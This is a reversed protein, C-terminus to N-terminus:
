QGPRPRPRPRSPPAQAPQVPQIPAAVVQALATLKGEAANARRRQEDVQTQLAQVESRWGARTRDLETSRVSLLDQAAELRHQLDAVSREDREREQQLQEYRAIHEQAVRDADAHAAALQETLREAHTALGAAHRAAADANQAAAHADAARAAREDDLHGAVTTLQAEADTLRARTVGHATTEANLRGQTDALLAAVDQLQETLDATTAREADLEATLAETRSRQAALEQTAEALRAQEATIAAELQEAYGEAADARQTEAAHAERTASVQTTLAGVERSRDTREFALAETFEEQQAALDSRLSETTRQLEAHASQLTAHASQLDAAERGLTGLRTQLALHDDALTAHTAQLASLEARAQDHQGRLTDLADQLASDRTQPADPAQERLGAATQERLEAVAQEHQAREAELVEAFEARVDDLAQEHQAAANAATAQAAREEDLQGRLSAERQEAAAVAEQSARLEAAARRENDALMTELEALRAQARGLGQWLEAVQADDLDHETRKRGLRLRRGSTEEGTDDVDEALGAAMDQLVSGADTPELAGAPQRPEPADHERDLWPRAPSDVTVAGIEPVDSEEHSFRNVLSRLGGGRTRARGDVVGDPEDTGHQGGASEVRRFIGTESPSTM